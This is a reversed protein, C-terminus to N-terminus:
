MSFKAGEYIGGCLKEKRRITKFFSSKQYSWNAGSGIWFYNTKLLKTVKYLERKSHLHVLDYGINKCIKLAEFYGKKARHAKYEVM